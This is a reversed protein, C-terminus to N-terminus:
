NPASQLEPCLASLELVSFNESRTRDQRWTARHRPYWHTKVRHCSLSAGASGWYGSSLSISTCFTCLKSHRSFGLIFGFCIIISDLISLFVWGQAQVTGRQHCQRHLHALGRRETLHRRRGIPADRPAESAAVARQCFIWAPRTWQELCFVQFCFCCLHVAPWSTLVSRRVSWWPMVQIPNFHIVIIFKDSLLRCHLQKKNSRWGETPCMTFDHECVYSFMGTNGVPSLTPTNWWTATLTKWITAPVGHSPPAISVFFSENFYKVPLVGM